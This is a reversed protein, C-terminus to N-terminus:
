RLRDRIHMRRHFTSVVVGLSSPRDFPARRAHAFSECKTRVRSTKKTALRTENKVTSARPRTADAGIPSAVRADGTPMPAYEPVAAIVAVIFFGIAWSLM